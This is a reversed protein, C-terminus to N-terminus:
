PCWRSQALLVWFLRSSEASLRTGKPSFAKLRQARTAGKTFRPAMSRHGPESVRKVNDPERSPSHLERQLDGSCRSPFRREEPNLSKLISFSGPGQDQLRQATAQPGKHGPPPDQCTPPPTLPCAHREPSRPSPRDSSNSSTPDSLETGELHPCSGLARQSVPTSHRPSPLALGCTHECLWGGWTADGPAM